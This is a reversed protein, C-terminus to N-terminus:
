KGGEKAENALLLATNRAAERKSLRDIFRIVRGNELEVQTAIRIHRGNAATM